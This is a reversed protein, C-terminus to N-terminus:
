FKGFNELTFDVTNGTYGHPTPTYYQTSNLKSDTIRISNDQFKQLDSSQKNHRIHVNLSLNGALKLVMKRGPDREPRGFDPKSFEVPSEM